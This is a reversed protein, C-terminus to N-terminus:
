KSWILITNLISPLKIGTKTIVDKAIQVKPISSVSDGRAIAFDSPTWKSHKNNIASIVQGKVWSLDELPNANLNFSLILSTLLVIKFM